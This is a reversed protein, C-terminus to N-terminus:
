EVSIFLSDKPNYLMSYRVGAPFKVSVTEMLKKVATQIENYNSDAVQMVAINIGPKGNIRTFNGYTYPGYEINEAVDKLRLVSDGNTHIILNVYEALQNYRSKCKIIYDVPQKNNKYLMCTVAELQKAPIAALVKELTLNFTAMYEKNLRIRILSDNNANITVLHSVGQIRQIEPIVNTVAYNTLFVKDYRENDESYMDVTMVLAENQRLVTIGSQIVQSPLQANMVSVINSINVAAKDPDTGPTFYVSVILSCDSGATYSIHDLNEVYHFISDRLPSAVSRLVTPIDAGPFQLKVQVTPISPIGTHRSEQVPNKTSTIDCAFLMISIVMAPVFWKLLKKYM